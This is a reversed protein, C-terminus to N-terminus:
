HSAGLGQSTPAALELPIGAGAVAAALAARCSVCLEGTAEGKATESLVSVKVLTVDDQTGCKDCAIM